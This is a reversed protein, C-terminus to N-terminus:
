RQLSRARSLETCPFSAALDLSAIMAVTQVPDKVTGSLDSGLKATAGLRYIRLPGEVFSQDGGFYASGNTKHLDGITLEGATALGGARLGLHAYDPGATVFPL